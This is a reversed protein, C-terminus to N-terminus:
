PRTAPPKRIVKREESANNWRMVPVTDRAPDISRTLSRPPAIPESMENGSRRTTPNQPAKTTRTASVARPTNIRVRVVTRSMTVVIPAPHRSIRARSCRRRSRRLTFTRTARGCTTSEGTRERGGTLLVAGAGSGFGSGFGM